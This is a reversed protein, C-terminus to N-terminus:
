IQYPNLLAYLLHDRWLGNLKISQRLYGERKFGLGELLRCSPENEPLVTAEIRHLKEGLFVADLIASLAERAYGMRRFGRDIKYGIRASALYKAYELDRFSVTGIIRFPNSREFIYYRYSYGDLFNENEIDLIKEFYALSRAAKKDIPEYLAFDNINNQYFRYVMRGENRSCTRLILRDTEYKFNM